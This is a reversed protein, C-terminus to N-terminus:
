SFDLITKEMKNGLKHIRTISGQCVNLNNAMTLFPIIQLFQEFLLGNTNQSNSYNKVIEPGAHLNGDMQILFEHGM